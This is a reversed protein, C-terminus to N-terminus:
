TIGSAHLYAEPAATAERSGTRAESSRARTARLAPGQLRRPQMSRGFFQQM